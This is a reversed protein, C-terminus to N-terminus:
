RRCRSPPSRDRSRNNSRRHLASAAAKNAFEIREQMYRIYSEITSLAAGPDDQDIRDMSEPFVAM